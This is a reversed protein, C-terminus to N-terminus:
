SRSGAPDAAAPRTEYDVDIPPVESALPPSEIHPTAHTPEEAFSAEAQAAAAQPPGAPGAMAEAPEAVQEAEVMDEVRAHWTERCRVCRVNRGAPGLAAPDLDYSTGCNPCVILM